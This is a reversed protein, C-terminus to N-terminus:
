CSRFYGYSLSIPVKSFPNKGARLYATRGEMIAEQLSYMMTQYKQNLFM